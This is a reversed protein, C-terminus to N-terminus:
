NKKWKIQRWKLHVIYIDLGVTMNVANEKRTLILKVGLGLKLDLM